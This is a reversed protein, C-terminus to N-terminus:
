REPDKQSAALRDLAGGSLRFVTWEDMPVADLKRYFEIASRNWDLVAWEVRACDREKALKAIRAFLAKGIGRGRHIPEVFVDEVYIGPRGAFTSFNHFFVAFGAAEEGVYALLAEAIPRAGFLSERLVSENATVQDLLKEYEALKRIFSLLLPIDQESAALIRV